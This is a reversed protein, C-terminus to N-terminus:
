SQYGQTEACRLDAAANAGLAPARVGLHSDNISNERLFQYQAEAVLKQRSTQSRDNGHVQDGLEHGLVQKLQGGHYGKTRAGKKRM